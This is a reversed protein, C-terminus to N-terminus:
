TPIGWEIRGLLDAVEELGGSARLRELPTQGRLVPNPTRLWTDAEKVKFLRRAKERIQMLLRLRTLALPSPSAMGEEWRAVTRSSVGLSQALAEQSLGFLERITLMKEKVSTKSKTVAVPMIEWRGNL